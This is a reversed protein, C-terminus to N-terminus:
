LLFIFVLLLIQADIKFFIPVEKIYSLEIKTRIERNNFKIFM